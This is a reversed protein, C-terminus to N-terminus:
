PAADRELIAEFEESQIMGLLVDTYRRFQMDELYRDVDESDAPTGFFGEHFQDLLGAASVNSFNDFFEQSTVMARIQSELRGQEIEPIAANLGAEHPERGLIARYLSRAVIEAESRDYGTRLARAARAVEVDLRWAFNLNGPLWVELVCHGEDRGDLRLRGEDLNEVDLIRDCDRDDVDLHLRFAPFTRGSQDRGTLQLEVAEDLYVALPQRPDVENWRGDPGRADLSGECLLPERWSGCDQAHAPPAVLLLFLLAPLVLLPRPVSM